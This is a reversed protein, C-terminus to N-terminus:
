EVHEGSPRQLLQHLPVPTGFNPTGDPNWTFRQARPSRFDGCGLNPRPNAHYLIWDETGDPSKFFSNHGTGFARSQPSSSLVPDAAKKWSGPNLLDADEPASLLGLAYHDTWCGGASFILFIKGDHRLIEPGENVVVNVKGTPSDDFEEWPFVPSSIKVRKGMIKHPNKMRAIYLSQVGNIDGQWGSWVVYLQGRHTFVTPDIAWKDSRDALKGRLIWKGQLPDPSKNELVWIRHTENTGADAAFYIYWKNGIYHLEPAWLQHSYPGEPPPTWVVKKEAHRLDSLTRTKRITLNVATTNMYYYFGDHFTVWPDPGSPLLPNAFFSSPPRDFDATM